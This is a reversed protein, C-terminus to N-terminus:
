IEDNNMELEEVDISKREEYEKLKKNEREQLM